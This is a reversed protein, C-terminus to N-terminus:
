WWLGVMVMMMVMKGDQWRAMRVDRAKRGRWRIAGLAEKNGRESMVKIWRDKGCIFEAVVVDVCLGCFAPEEVVVWIVVLFAGGVVVVVLVHLNFVVVVVVVRMAVSLMVVVVTGAGAVVRKIALVRLKWRREGDRGDFVASGGHASWVVEVKVHASVRDSCQMGLVRMVLGDLRVWVVWIVGAVPM